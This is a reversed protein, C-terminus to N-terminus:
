ARPPAIGTLIEFGAELAEPDNDSVQAGLIREGIAWSIVEAGQEYGRREWPDTSANWARLGRLEMFRERVAADTNVDLWIHAMEHLLIRRTMVNVLTTCVDVRGSEAYGLRGGCGGPDGHFRIEVPPAKLGWAGFRGVAWQALEVQEATAGYIRVDPRVEVWADARGAVAGLVAGAVLPIAVGLHVIKGMPASDPEGWAPGTHGAQLRRADRAARKRAREKCAPQM